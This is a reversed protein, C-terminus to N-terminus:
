VKFKSVARALSSINEQTKDSLKSVASVARNVQEAGAAMENMGANIEQTTKELNKSEQIVDMSGELMKKSGDKVQRTIESVLGSASLVQKSGQRQEEMANRINEEQDAVTKVSQDIAEFKSMVNGTSQTIKDISGKIKKLVGSITKSQSSSSEALKRIEDAVVAFGRGAEGAHAAEIAANMSLLNTQSAISQMVSNIELLSESERAIEQIDAAVQGLGVRGVESAGGLTNVHEANKALTETVSRINAIMEEVASSTQSVADTQQEVHGGLKDINVTVQEMTTNASTVGANQDLVKDKIRQINAVIQNMASATQSMNGSLDEGIESLTKAQGKIAGIMKGLAEMTKNFSRSAKALEDKGEEPLRKTLDGHATDDLCQTLLAIPRGIMGSIYLALFVTAALAIALAVIIAVLLTRALSTANQSTTQGDDVMIQFCQEFNELIIDSYLRCLEMAGLIAPIDAIKSAEYISVVVPVLNNDYLARAEDFLRAVEPSRILARYSNMYGELVPLLSVINGFETEVLAFDGTMSAMVMERVHIRITLLTREASALHPMPKIIIENKYSGSNAIRLMGFIGVVGVAVALTGVVLFSVILKASVRMNKM